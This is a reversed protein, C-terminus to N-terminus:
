LHICVGSAVAIFNNRHLLSVTTFDNSKQRTAVIMKLEQQKTIKIVNKKHAFKLHCNSLSPLSIALISIIELRSRCSTHQDKPRVNESAITLSSTRQRQSPIVINFAVDFLQRM